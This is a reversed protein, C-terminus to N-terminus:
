LEENFDQSQTMRDTIEKNLIFNQHQPDLMQQHECLIEKVEEIKDGIEIIEQKELPRMKVIENMKVLDEKKTDGITYKVIENVRSIKSQSRDLSVVKQNLALLKTDDVHVPVQVPQIKSLRELENFITTFKSQNKQETESIYLRM